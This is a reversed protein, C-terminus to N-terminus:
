SPSAELSCASHVLESPPEVQVIALSPSGMAVSAWPVLKSEGEAM